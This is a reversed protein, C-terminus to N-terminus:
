QLSQSASPKKPNSLGCQAGASSPCRHFVQTFSCLVDDICPTKKWAVFTVLLKKSSTAICKNSIGIGKTVYTRLKKNNGFSDGMEM